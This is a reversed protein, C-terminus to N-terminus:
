KKFFTKMKSLAGEERKLYAGTVHLTQLKSKGISSRIITLAAEVPDEEVPLQVPNDSHRERVIVQQLRPLFDPHMLVINGLKKFDEKVLINAISFENMQVAKIETPRQSAEFVEKMYDEFIKTQKKQESKDVLVLISRESSEKFTGGFVFTKLHESWTRATDASNFTLTLNKFKAGPKSERTICCDITVNSEKHKIAVVRRLEIPYYPKFPKDKGPETCILSFDMVKVDCQEGKYSAKQITELWKEPDVTPKVSSKRRNDAEKVNLDKQIQDKPPLAPEKLPRSPKSDASPPPPKTEPSPLKDTQKQTTQVAPPREIPKPKEVPQVPKSEAIVPQVPKLDSIVSKEVEQTKPKEVTSSDVASRAESKRPELRQSLSERSNMGSRSVVSSKGERVQSPRRIELEAPKGEKVENVELKQDEKNITSLSSVKRDMTPLIEPEKPQVAYVPAQVDEIHQMDMANLFKRSKPGVKVDLDSYDIPAPQTEPAKPPEIEQSKGLYTKSSQDANKRLGGIIKSGLSSKISELSNKTSKKEQHDHHKLNEFSRSLSAMLGKKKKEPKDENLSQLSKNKFDALPLPLEEDPTDINSTPIDEKLPTPALTKASKISESIPSEERSYSNTDTPNIGVPKVQQIPEAPSEKVSDVPKVPSEKVPDVPKVPSEKVPDRISDIIQVPSEKPAFLGSQPSDRNKFQNLLSHKKPSPSFASDKSTSQPSDKQTSASQATDKETTSSLVADKETQASQPGPSDQLAARESQTSEPLAVNTPSEQLERQLQEFRSQLTRKRPTTQVEPVVPQIEVKPKEENKEVKDNPDAFVKEVQNSILKELRSGSQSHSSALDEWPSKTTSSQEQVGRSLTTGRSRPSNTPKTEQPKPAEVEGRWNGFLAKKQELLWLDDETLEEKKEEQQELTKLPSIEKVSASDRGQVSVSDVSKIASDRAQVSTKEAPKVSVREPVKVSSVDQALSSIDRKVSTREEGAFSLPLSSEKKASKQRKPEQMSKFERVQRPTSKQSSIDAETDVVSPSSTMQDQQLVSPRVTTSVKRDTKSHLQKISDNKRMLPEFAEQLSGSRQGSHVPETASGLVSLKKSMERVVAAPEFLYDTRRGNSVDGMDQGALEKATSWGMAVDLYGRGRFSLGRARSEEQKESKKDYTLVHSKINLASLKNMEQCDQHASEVLEPRAAAMTNLWSGYRKTEKYKPRTQSKTNKIHVPRDQPSRIKPKNIPLIPDQQHFNLVDIGWDTLVVTRTQGEKEADAADEEERLQEAREMRAEIELVDYHVFRLPRLQTGVEKKRNGSFGEERLLFDEVPDLFAARPVKEYDYDTLQRRAIPPPQGEFVDVDLHWSFQSQLSYQSGDLNYVSM